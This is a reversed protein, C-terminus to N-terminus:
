ALAFKSSIEYIMYGLTIYGPATSLVIKPSNFVLPYYSRTATYIACIPLSQSPDVFVAHMWLLPLFVIAQEVFNGLTRDGTLALLDKSNYYKVARFSIKAANGAKERAEKRLRNVLYYKSSAQFPIFIFAYLSLYLLTGQVTGRLDDKAPFSNQM